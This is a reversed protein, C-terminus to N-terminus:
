ANADSASEDPEDPVLVALRVTEAAVALTQAVPDQRLRLHRPVHWDVAPDEHHFGM